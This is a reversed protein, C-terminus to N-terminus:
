GIKNQERVTAIHMTADLLVKIVAANDARPEGVVHDTRPDALFCYHHLSRMWARAALHILKLLLLLTAVKGRTSGRFREEGVLVHIGRDWDM